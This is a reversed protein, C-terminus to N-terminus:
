AAASRPTTTAPRRKRRADWERYGDEIEPSREGRKYARAYARCEADSLARRWARVDVAHPSDNWALLEPVSKADDVFAALTVAVARWDGAAIADLAAATADQDVDHVAGVLALAQEIAAPPLEARIM